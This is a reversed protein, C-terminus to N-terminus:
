AAAAHFCEENAPRSRALAREGYAQGALVGAGYTADQRGRGRISFHGHTDRGIPALPRAFPRYALRREIQRVRQDRRRASM